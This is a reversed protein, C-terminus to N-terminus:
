MTARHLPRRRIIKSFLQCIFKHILRVGVGGGPPPTSIPYAKSVQEHHPILGILLAFVVLPSIRRFGEYVYKM